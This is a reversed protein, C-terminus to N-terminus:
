CCEVGEDRVFHPKTDMMAPAAAGSENARAMKLLKGARDAEETWRKPGELQHRRRNISAESFCLRAAARSGRLCLSLGRFPSAPNRSHRQQGRSAWIGWAFLNGGLRVECHQLKSHMPHPGGAASSPASSLEWKGEERNRGDKEGEGKRECLPPPLEGRPPRPTPRIM